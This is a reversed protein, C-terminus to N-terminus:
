MLGDTACSVILTGDRVFDVGGVPDSHAPLSRMQRGARVDWLFVAEDYSGSALMNGKPSFALSFVYNHHGLLPPYAKGTARNWLRIVKDDSGTAITRSDPSWALTSIGALHGEMTQLLKGNQADWVKLTADASCSAIWRGDPSFRVQAVPAKHGNLIMKEKYKLRRIRMGSVGYGNVGHHDSPALSRSRPSRSQQRSIDRSNDNYTHDLEDRSPSREDRCVDGSNGHLSTTQMSRSLHHISPKEDALEDSSPSRSYQPTSQASDHFNSRRRKRGPSSDVIAESDSM